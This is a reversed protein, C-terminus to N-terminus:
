VGAVTGTTNGPVQHLCGKCRKIHTRGSSHAGLICIHVGTSSHPRRKEGDEGTQIVLEATGAGRGAHLGIAIARNRLMKEKGGDGRSKQTLRM